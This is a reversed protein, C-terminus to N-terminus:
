DLSLIFLIDLTPSEGMIFMSILTRKVIEIPTKDSISIFSIENYDSM